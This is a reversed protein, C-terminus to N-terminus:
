MQLCRVSLLCLAFFAFCHRIDSREGKAMEVTVRQLNTTPIQDQEYTARKPPVYADQCDTGIMGDNKKTEGRSVSKDAATTEM